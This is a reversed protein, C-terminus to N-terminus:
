TSIDWAPEASIDAGAVSSNHLGWLQPFSPDNPVASTHLVYDPEVFLVESRQLAALLEAVNKSKSHFLHPGSPGGLQRVEDADALQQFAQVIAPTISRFKVLVQQAVVTHGNYQDTPKDAFLPLALLFYVVLHSIRLLRGSLPVGM